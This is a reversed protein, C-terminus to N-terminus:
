PEQAVVEEPVKVRTGDKHIEFYDPENKRNPSHIESIAGEMSAPKFIKM